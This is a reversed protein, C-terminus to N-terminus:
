DRGGNKCGEGGVLSTRRCDASATTRAVRCSESVLGYVQRVHESLGQAERRDCHLRRRIDVMRRCHDMDKRVIGDHSMVLVVFM